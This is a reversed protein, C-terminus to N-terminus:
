HRQGCALFGPNNEIRVVAMGTEALRRAVVARDANSRGLTRYDRTASLAVATIEATGSELGARKECISWSASSLFNTPAFEAKAVLAELDSAARAYDGNQFESMGRSYLAALDSETSAGPQQAVLNNGTLLCGTFVVVL